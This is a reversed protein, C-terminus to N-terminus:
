ATTQQQTQVAPQGNKRVRLGLVDKEVWGALLPVAIFISSYSGSILGILMVAIFQKMTAGGFLLVAVMIFIANLQTALSRHITEMLSRDAISSFTDGRYKPTNERIRDFVVITDQMSFSIVTLIATLYLADAEWGLFLGALSILGLTLFLDHLMALIAAAGYRFPNPVKRFAFIMFGLIVLSAAAIAVIAARTVENGIAPGVQSYQLEEFNGYKAKLAAALKLKVADDIPKLRVQLNTGGSGLTTVAPDGAGNDAFLQRLEAPAVPKDFQMQWLTGGTFDIAPKVPLGTTATLYIMSILGPIIILASLLFYWKRNEVFRIM